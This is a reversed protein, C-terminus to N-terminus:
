QTGPASRRLFWLAGFAAGVLIALSGASALGAAFAPPPSAASTAM